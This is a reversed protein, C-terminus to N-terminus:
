ILPAVYTTSTARHNAITYCEWNENVNGWILSNESTEVTSVIRGYTDMMSEQDDGTSYKPQRRETAITM